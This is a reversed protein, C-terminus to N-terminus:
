IHILSLWQAYLTTNASISFTNGAAYSTGSGGAVTNWGTFNFGSKTFTNSKVTVTSGEDYPSNSDTLTGSGGNANYTVTYTNKYFKAETFEVYKNSSGSVTVNYVIKYYCNSWDKGSPRTVTVTKNAAFTPTLTSVPSSFDSNKSVTVTMSNVTISSAAGHKIEIKSVNAGIATKSYVARDTNTISKGGLRWPQMQSNGAVNWTISSITVDCNGTYSNNTGKAPTLTYTVVEAGWAPHYNALIAFLVIAFRIFQKAKM